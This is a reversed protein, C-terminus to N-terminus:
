LEVLHEATLVATWTYFIVPFLQGGLAVNPMMVWACTEVQSLKVGPFLILMVFQLLVIINTCVSKM